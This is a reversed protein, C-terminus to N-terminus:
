KATFLVRRSCKPNTGLYTNGKLTLGNRVHQYVIMRASALEDM